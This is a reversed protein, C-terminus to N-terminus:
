VEPYLEIVRKAMAKAIAKAQVIAIEDPAGKAEASPAVVEWGSEEVFKNLGKVGAKNWGSSGFTAVLRNTLELNQLKNVVNEMAPFMGANYASSGLIVAKYRWVDRIVNSLDAKSADYIRIRRIGNEVLERAIIDALKETNGYMSGFVIVVGRQAEHLAWRKYQNIVHSVDTRWVPGHTSGIMKVELNDLHALAKVVMKSYKGIINSFYRLMENELDGLYIEDDFIGGNLTGFSGFADGSFLIKDENVYTMMTEPWHLWPTVFFTLSRSGINLKDNDKIEITNKEIKYFGRLLVFTMKNGIIKVDPFKNVIYKIGASHDPEMHNIVLYDIKRGQLVADVADLYDELFNKEVTDILTVMEDIILYSNYAVGNEIPWLNEFLHTRRDNATFVYINDTLKVTLM